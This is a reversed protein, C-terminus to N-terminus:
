NLYCGLKQMERFSWRATEIWVLERSPNFAQLRQKDSEESCPANPIPPSQFFFFVFLDNM